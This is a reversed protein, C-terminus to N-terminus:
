PSLASASCQWATSQRRRRHRWQQQGRGGASAGPRAGVASACGVPQHRPVTAIVLVCPHMRLTASHFGRQASQPETAVLACPRRVFGKRFPVVSVPPLVRLALVPEWSARSSADAVSSQGALQMELVRLGAAAGAAQGQHGADQVAVFCASVRPLYVSGAFVALGSAGDAAATVGGGSGQMSADGGDVRQLFQWGCQPAGVAVSAWQPALVRFFCSRDAVLLTGPQPEMLQVQVAAAAAATATAESMRRSEGAGTAAAAASYSALQPEPLYAVVLPQGAGSDSSSSSSSSAAAEGQCSSTGASQNDPSDVSSVIVQFHLCALVLLRQILGYRIQVPLLHVDPWVSKQKAAVDALGHRSSLTGFVPLHLQLTAVRHASDQAAGVRHICHTSGCDGYRSTCSM